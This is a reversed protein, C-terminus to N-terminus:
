KPDDVDTLVNNCASRNEPHPNFGLARSIEASAEKVEKEFRAIAAPTFRQKPGSLSLAAVVKGASDKIPAAVCKVGVNLEENDLAIGSRRIGDLEQGLRKRDTISHPTHPALGRTEILRGIAEDTMGSLLAKGVGTCHMPNRQGVQNIIRIPQSCEVKEVYLCQDQDPVCLYCTEQARRVLDMMIPRALSRLELSMEAVNGLFLVDPGLRYESRRPAVRSLFGETELTALIRQVSSKHYGLAAIIDEATWVNRQPSFLKLLRLTKVLSKITSGTKAHDPMAQM